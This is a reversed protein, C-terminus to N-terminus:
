EITQWLRYPCATHLGLWPQREVYYLRGTDTGRGDSDHSILAQAHMKEKARKKFKLTQFDPAEYRDWDFDRRSADPNKQETVYEHIFPFLEGEVEMLAGEPFVKHLTRRSWNLSTANPDARIVLNHGSNWLRRRADETMEKWAAKTLVLLPRKPLGPLTCKRDFNEEKFVDALMRVVRESQLTQM